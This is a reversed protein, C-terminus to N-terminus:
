KNRKWEKVHIPKVDWIEKAYQSIARDSSFKGMNATNIISMKDWKEKNKYTKSVLKQTEVYSDFDKLVMFYDGKNLLSDMLPEFLKKDGHSFYGGGILDLCTRLKENSNYENRPNYGSNRLNQVEEAKLGFIFINEEGVEEMIEVNAGDLTGITLAGNLAFKMNGTGSAEMGATSTQESLDAAPFILEGLSVGYNELFVVKLRDEIVPDNNIIDAISNILKIILKAMFYASAAKGSFIVTRPVYDKEPKERICNYLNVVHLANLLQRKYEHIRKAQCDFISHANIKIGNHEEIYKALKIKNKHKVDHWKKQFEKDGSFPILKKLEDMNTVWKDGIYGTILESLLPNCLKLWRRQSIGNTINKFKGPYFEDFDKFLQEKIIKTHLEAVGNVSHSGVIALNAMHVYKVSGDEVISMRKLKGEDGPYKKRVEDLFNDNIQCIIQLHRPLVNELLDIPWKELAEPMITHNTYGFIEKTISWAKNWPYDYIDILLRMMEAIAIAPHTDNMQIAAKEPLNDLSKNMVKHRRIIDQLTAAVFFYEQKLRLEKGRYVDDRPYLVMTINESRFKDEVAKVYDGSNFYNLDFEKTAKASWLRLSVATNNQYGPVPYDYAEANIKETEVWESKQRGKEDVSNIVKGYFNIDFVLEKRVIEWPSGGNLWDDPKEIQFGDVIAQQFIGYDYRIGYGYVPIEMTAMSDMFCAALRGLGGHGLGADPEFEKLEEIDYGIDKLVKRCEQYIGLNILSNSLARGMLYELSLYYVRKVNNKYYTSQTNNWREMLRDRITYCLSLEFDEDFATYREKGLTYELHFAISELIADYDMGLGKEIISWVKECKRKECYVEAM